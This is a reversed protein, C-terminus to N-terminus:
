FLSYQGLRTQRLLPIIVAPDTGIPISAFVLASSCSLEAVPHGNLAGLMVVIYAAILVFPWAGKSVGSIRQFNLSFLGDLLIVAGALAVSPRLLVGFLASPRLIGIAPGILLRCCAFCWDAGFRYACRENGGGSVDM